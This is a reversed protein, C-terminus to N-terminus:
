ISVQAWFCCLIKRTSSIFSILAVITPQLWAAWLFATIGLIPTKADVSPLASIGPVASLQFLASHVFGSASLPSDRRPVPWGCTRPLLSSLLCHHFFNGLFHSDWPDGFYIPKSEPWVETVFVQESFSMFLITLFRHLRYSQPLFGLLSAGPPTVLTWPVWPVKASLSVWLLWLFRGCHCWWPSFEGWQEPWLLWVMVGEKISNLLQPFQPKGLTLLLQLIETGWDKWSYFPFLKLM